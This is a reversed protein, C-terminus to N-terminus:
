IEDIIMVFMKRGVEYEFGDGFYDFVCWVFNRFVVCM